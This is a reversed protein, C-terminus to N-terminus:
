LDSCSRHRARRSGLRLFQPDYQGQTVGWLMRRSIKDTTFSDVEGLNADPDVGAGKQKGRFNVKVDMQLRDAAMDWILGLVKKPNAKDGM